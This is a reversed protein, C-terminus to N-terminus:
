NGGHGLGDLIDSLIRQAASWRYNLRGTGAEGTWQELARRNELRALGRKLHRERERVIGRAVPDDAIGVGGGSGLVAGIWEAVFQRTPKGIRAGASEVFEWFHGRNWDALSRKNDSVEKSWETIRNRYGDALDNRNALACRESLLLNYLLPAGHLVTSFNRAHELKAQISTPFEAFQPHQWPFDIPQCKHGRDALFALLTGRTRTMIRERLYEAEVKRLGFGAQRPFDVPPMPIGTHWNPRPTEYAPEGDDARPNLESSRYYSSVSRHYQDQSNGTFCIGWRLLGSWYISSPLRQLRERAQIGIIGEQDSSSALVRILAIEEKRARSAFEASTARAKELALYVWPVFLFYRARTQITSTGPFFLDAFADRVAGVGLEDRTTPERFLDIVELMRRKEHESYDLWGFTSTM